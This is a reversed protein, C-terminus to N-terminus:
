SLHYFLTNRCFPNHNIPKFIALSILYVVCFLICLSKILM